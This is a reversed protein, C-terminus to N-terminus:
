GFFVGDLYYWVKDEQKFTSKEHHVQAEQKENLYYAKFEVINEYAEIVELKLWSNSISWKLIEAKAYYKRESIHTTAVLYDAYHLVYASYRSRMLQEPTEPFSTKNLFPECCDNFPKTSKCYCSEM